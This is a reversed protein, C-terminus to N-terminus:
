DGRAPAATQGPRGTRLIAHTNVWVSFTRRCSAPDVKGRAAAAAIRKAVGQRFSQSPTQLARLKTSAVLHLFPNCEYGLVHVKGRQLETDRFWRTATPTM